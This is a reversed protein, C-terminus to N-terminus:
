LRDPTRGLVALDDPDRAAATQADHEDRRSLQRSVDDASIWKDGEVHLRPPAERAGPGRGGVRKTTPLAASHPDVGYLGTYKDVGSHHFTFRLREAREPRVFALANLGPKPALPAIPVPHWDGDRLAEVHVSEPPACGGVPQDDYFYLVM